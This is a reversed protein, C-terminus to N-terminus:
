VTFWDSAFNGAVDWGAGTDSVAYGHGTQNGVSPVVFWGDLSYFQPLSSLGFWPIDAAGESASVPGGGRLELSVHLDTVVGPASVSQLLMPASSQAFTVASGGTMPTPASGAAAPAPQGPDVAASLQWQSAPIIDSGGRLAGFNLQVAVLLRRWITARDISRGYLARANL